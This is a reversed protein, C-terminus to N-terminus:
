DQTRPRKFFFTSPAIEQPASLKLDSRPKNVDPPSACAPDPPWGLSRKVPLMRSPASRTGHRMGIRSIGCGDAWPM